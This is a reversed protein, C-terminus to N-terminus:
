VNPCYHDPSVGDPADAVQQSAWVLPVFVSLDDQRQRHEPSEVADKREGLLVHEVRVLRELAPEPDALAKRISRRSRRFTRAIARISIGDRKARRINTFDEVTLM